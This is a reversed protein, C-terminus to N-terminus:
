LSRMMEYLFIDMMPAQMEKKVSRAKGDFEATLTLIRQLEASSYNRTGSLFQAQRKKGFIKLERFTQDPGQGGELLLAVELLKKVQWTLGGLIQVMDGGSSLRLKAYIDLAGELDRATVKDFLSFVSEEKSHYLINDVDDTGISDGEKFYFNLVSCAKKLEETNNEVMELLDEVAEGEITIKKERFFQFVWSKKDREFLEWFIKKGGKPVAGDLKKDVATKDSVLVLTADEAPKKIYEILSKQQNGKYSDADLLLVFRHPSFLSGNSVISLVESIDKEDPYFRYHEPEEGLEKTLQRRLNEIHAKKQGEEPGLLLYIREM